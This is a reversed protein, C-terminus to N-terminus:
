HSWLTGEHFASPISLLVGGVWYFFVWALTAGVLGAGAWVVAALGKRKVPAAALTALCAACVVQGRHETVCQRCYFRRCRPCRAAAQVAAHNFCRQHVLDRGHSTPANSM